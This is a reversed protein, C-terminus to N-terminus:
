FLHVHHSFDLIFVIFNTLNTLIAVKNYFLINKLDYDDYILSDAIYNGVKLCHESFLKWKRVVNGHCYHTIIMRFNLFIVIEVTM